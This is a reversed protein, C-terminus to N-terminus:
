YYSNYTYSGEKDWQAFILARDQPKVRCLSPSLAKL